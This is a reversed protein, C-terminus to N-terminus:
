VDTVPCSLDVKEMIGREWQSNFQFLDVRYLKLEAADDRNNRWGDLAKRAAVRTKAAMTDPNGGGENRIRQVVGKPSLIVYDNKPAENAM